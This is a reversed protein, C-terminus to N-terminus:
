FPARKPEWFAVQGGDPVAVVSRWGAPGERPDLLVGAGSRRASETTARVDPVKVYPLWLARKIGCEVVGGEIGGGWDLVQYSRPGAEM